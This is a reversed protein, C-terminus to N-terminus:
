DTEVPAGAVAPHRVDGIQGAGMCMLSVFLIGFARKREAPTTVSCSLRARDRTEEAIVAGRAAAKLDLRESM